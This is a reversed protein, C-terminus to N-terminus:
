QAAPQASGLRRANAVLGDLHLGRTLAALAAGGGVAAIMPDSTWWALMAAVAGASAGLAVGVLPACAMARGAVARDVRDPPGIPLATLTSFALRLGSVM